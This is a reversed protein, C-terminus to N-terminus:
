KCCWGRCCYRVLRPLCAVDSPVSAPYLHLRNVHTHQPVLLRARAQQGPEYPIIHPVCRTTSNRSSLGGQATVATDAKMEHYTGGARMKDGEIDGRLYERAEGRKGYRDEDAVGGERKRPREADGALEEGDEGCEGHGRGSHGWM